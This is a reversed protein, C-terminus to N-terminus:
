SARRIFKGRNDRVPKRRALEESRARGEHAKSCFFTKQQALRYQEVYLKKHCHGCKVEVQAKRRKNALAQRRAREDILFPEYDRKWRRITDAFVEPKQKFLQLMAAYAIELDIDRQSRSRGEAKKRRECALCRSKKGSRKNRAPGFDSAPRLDECGVCWLLVRDTPEVVM